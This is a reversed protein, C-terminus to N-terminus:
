IHGKKHTVSNKKRLNGISLMYITDKLISGYITLAEMFVLVLLLIGRIKGEAELWFIYRM